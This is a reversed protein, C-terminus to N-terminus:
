APLPLAGVVGVCPVPACFPSRRVESPELWLRLVNPSCLGLSRDGFPLLLGTRVVCIPVSADGMWRCGGFPVVTFGGGELATGGLRVFPTTVADFNFPSFPVAFRIAAPAPVVVPLLLMMLGGDENPLLLLRALTPSGSFLLDAGSTTTGFPFSRVGAAVPAAVLSSRSVDPEESESLSVTTTFPPAPLQQLSSLLRALAPLVM